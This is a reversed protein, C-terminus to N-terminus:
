LTSSPPPMHPSGRSILGWICCCCLVGASHARAAAKWCSDLGSLGEVRMAHLHVDAAPQLLCSSLLVQGLEGDERAQCVELEHLAGVLHACPRVNLAPGLAAVAGGKFEACHQTYRGQASGHLSCARLMCRIPFVRVSCAGSMATELAGHAGGCNDLHWAAHRQSAAQLRGSASGSCSSCIEFITNKCAGYHRSLSSGHGM